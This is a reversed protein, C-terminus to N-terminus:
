HHYQSKLNQLEWRPDIGRGRAKSGRAIGSYWAPTTKEFYFCATRGLVNRFVDTRGTKRANTTVVALIM